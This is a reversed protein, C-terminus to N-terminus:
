WGLDKLLPVTLDKPPVLTTTLDSSIAPEMLLNPTATVDWHSVSSGPQLPNPTYLLPRGISDAGAIRSNDAGWSATVAGATSRSGYKPAAVVAAKLTVGSAQSIRASPINISPDAGGLGSIAAAVNDAILVASAGAVQALKVKVVFTCSGRDIIAVKGAIKNIVAQTFAGATCGEFIGSDAPAALKGLASPVTIAPGFLAAGYDYAGTAGPVPSTVRVVPTGRLTAAAGVVANNGTWVLKLPNIASAKREASTMTLWSKGVTNDYMFGEWISPLGTPTFATGEANIRNGTATSVSLVSFGLGHGLKHLLTTLFNVGTGNFGTYGLYFTTGTLCGTKGLNVNFQTKIDANDYNTGTVPTGDTLDIGALKHALAQPYWTGPVGGAFSHWINWAGASGLTASNATCSLAEWGASVNITVNSQLAQEWIDAGRRYVNFRQEGLTTGPNGGVPAVPTTDNFGVGAADRSTIVITAAQAATLSTLVLGLPVLSRKLAHSFTNFAPM